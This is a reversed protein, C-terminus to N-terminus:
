GLPQYESGGCLDPAPGPIAGEIVGDSIVLITQAGDEPQLVCVYWRQPDLVGAGILNRPSSIMLNEKRTYGFYDRALAAYDHPFPETEGSLAVAGPSGACGALMAAIGILGLWNRM